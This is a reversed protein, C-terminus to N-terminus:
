NVPGTGEWFYTNAEKETGIYFHYKALRDFETVGARLSVQNPNSSDFGAADLKEGSVYKASLHFRGLPKGNRITVQGSEPIVIRFQGDIIFPKQPPEVIEFDNDSEPDVTVIIPGRFGDPVIFEIDAANSLYRSEQISVLIFLLLVVTIVVLIFTVAPGGACKSRLRIQSM